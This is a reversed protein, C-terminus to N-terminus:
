FQKTQKSPIEIEKKTGDIQILASSWVTLLKKKKGDVLDILKLNILSELVLDWSYLVFKEPSRWLFTSVIYDFWIM